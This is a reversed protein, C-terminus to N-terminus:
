VVERLAFILKDLDEKTHMETVCYLATEGFGPYEEKIIKGGHIGRELLKSHIEEIGKETEDVNVTFEKFHLANFIPAKVGEIENIRKMAYHSNALITEGLKKMGSQGLLSLYVAVAVACLAENTCINSTARERRIHQERTQLTMAYGRTKKDETTTMGIIRGPMQHIIKRDERCAFIGILPGGFNMHNGLPQGEGIVIDAGYEGPPKIVGLSTPDVGVVFLAGCKHAIEAIEDVQTELFGLYSPNEVYVAATENSVSERLGELDLQGTGQLFPAELVKIGAAYAYTRLVSRREPHFIRPIIVENRRTLRAAMLAAEGLASAWDYMSSNTVDMGTLECILSQYEFLAQLMGQSIEPQYPTYSTLFETRGVVERVVAPVYHPWCGAGLFILQDGGKKNKALIEKVFRYVEYETMPGPLKLRETLRVKKPIDSYLEEIDKVGIEEMMKRKIEPSSNPIYPHVFPPKM